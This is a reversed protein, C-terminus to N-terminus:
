REWPLADEEWVRALAHRVAQIAQWSGVAFLAFLIAMWMDTPAYASPIFGRGRQSGVLANVALTGSFALSVWLSALVGNSPAVATFIERTIQGGDLPWIPLLNFVGWWFNIELLYVFLYRFALSRPLHLVSQIV